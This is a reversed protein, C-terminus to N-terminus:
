ESLILNYVHSGDTLTERELAVRGFTRGTDDRVEVICPDIAESHAAPRETNADEVHDRLFCYLERAGLGLEDSVLTKKTM